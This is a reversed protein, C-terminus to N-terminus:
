RWTFTPGDSGLICVYIYERHKDGCSTVLALFSPHPRTSVIQCMVLRSGARCCLLHLCSPMSCAPSLAPAMLSKWTSSNLAQHRAGAHSHFSPLRTTTLASSSLILVRSHPSSRRPSFNRQFPLNCVYGIGSKRATVTYRVGDLTLVRSRCCRLSPCCVLRTRRCLTPLFSVAFGVCCRRGRASAV